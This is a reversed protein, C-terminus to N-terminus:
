DRKDASEQGLEDIQVYPMKIMLLKEFTSTYTLNDGKSLRSTMVLLIVILHAITHLLSVRLPQRLSSGEPANLQRHEKNEEPDNATDNDDTQVQKHGINELEDGGLVQVHVKAADKMKESHGDNVRFRHGESPADVNQHLVVQHHM